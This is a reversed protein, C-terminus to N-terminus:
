PSTIHNKNISRELQIGLKKRLSLSNYVILTNVQFAYIHEMKKWTLFFSVLLFYMRGTEKDSVNFM